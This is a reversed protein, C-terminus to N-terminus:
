RGEYRLGYNHHAKQMSLDYAEDYGRLRVIIHFFKFHLPNLAKYCRVPLM